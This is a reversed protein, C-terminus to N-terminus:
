ERALAGFAGAVVHFAKKPVHDRDVLGKRNYGDQHKSLKIPTRFDSLTFFSVGQLSGEARLADLIPWIKRYYAEQREEGFDFGTEGRVADIGIEALLLPRGLASAARIRDTLTPLLDKEEGPTGDHIGAYTNVGVVDLRAVLELPCVKAMHPTYAGEIGGTYTVLRTADHEHFFDAARVFYELNTQPKEVDHYVCENGVSWLIISPANRFASLMEEACALGRRLPAPEAMNPMWYAPIEMWLLIGAEDCARVFERSQPWHGARLYNAGLERALRVAEAATKESASFPGRVPDTIWSCVGRLFIPEGNLLIERGRARVERLGVRDEWRDAGCEVVLRYLFPDQPLWLRLAERPLAIEAEAWRAARAALTWRAAISGDPAVLKGLVPHREDREDGLLRVRLKLCVRDEELRTELAAAQVCLAPVRYLRVPAHIGGFHFWDHNEGPVSDELRKCEVFVLLRNEEQLLSTVDCAFPTFPGDHEGALKGNLFVRCRDAVGEFALYVREGPGAPRQRFLLRYVLLGEYFELRPHIQQYAAPVSTPWFADDDYSPFFRGPIRQSSWWSQRRAREMPDPLLGWEAPLSESPREAFQITLMIPFLDAGVRLPM